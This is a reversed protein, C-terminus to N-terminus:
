SYQKFYWACFWGSLGYRRGPYAAAGGVATASFFAVPAAGAAGAAFAGAFAAALAGSFFSAPLFYSCIFIAKIRGEIREDINCKTKSINLM